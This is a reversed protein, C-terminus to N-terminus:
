SSVEHEGLHIQFRSNQLIKYKIPFRTETERLRSNPLKPSNGILFVRPEM